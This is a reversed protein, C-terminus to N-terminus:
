GRGHWKNPDGLGRGYWRRFGDIWMSKTAIAVPIPRKASFPHTRGSQPYSKTYFNWGFMTNFHMTTLPVVVSISGIEASRSVFFVYKKDITFIGGPMVSPVRLIGVPPLSTGFEPTNIEEAISPAPITL